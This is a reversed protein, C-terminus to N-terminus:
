ELNSYIGVTVYTPCFISFYALLNAFSKGVVSFVVSLSPSEEDNDRPTTNVRYVSVGFYDLTLFLSSLFANDTNSFRIELYRDDEDYIPPISFHKSVLAYRMDATGDPGFVPTVSNIKLDGSYLISAISPIRVGGKEELPLLCYECKDELVARSVSRFDPAYFVRPDSFDQSFVDFAEDALRNKVYVFTEDGEGEYLFDSESLNVGRKDLSSLLKEIFVAKDISEASKIYSLASKTIDSANVPIASYSDKLLFLAEIIEYVNLGDNYLSFFADAVLESFLSIEVIRREGLPLQKRSLEYLNEFSVGFSLFDNDKFM